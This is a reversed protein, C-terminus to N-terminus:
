RRQASQDCDDTLKAAQIHMWDFNRSRGLSLWGEEEWFRWWADYEPDDFKARDRGWNYRNNSPDWDIAIGWAHNSWTSGGRKKRCNYSGGYLNLRLRKIEADGYHEHVNVLIRELSDAVKEHILITEVKKSLDWAIKLTWPCRVKVLRAKCPRGYFDILEAEKQRPWGNPNINMPKRDRWPRPMAGQDLLHTLADYAFDAQPGWLGDIPGVEIDSDKCLLQFFAVAKRRASWQHWTGPLDASRQGLAADIARNTVPGRKGDISGRYLGLTQLAEQIIRIARVKM